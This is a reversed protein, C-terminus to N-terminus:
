AGCLYNNTTSGGFASSYAQYMDDTYYLNNFSNIRAKSLWANSKTHPSSFSPLKEWIIFPGPVPNTSCATAPTNASCTANLRAVYVAPNLGTQLKVAIHITWIYVTGVSSSFTVTFPPTTTWTKYLMGAPIRAPRNNYQLQVSFTSIDVVTNAPPNWESLFGNNQLDTVINLVKPNIAISLNNRCNAQYYKTVAQFLQDANYQAKDIMNQQEFFRYLRIGVILLAISIVFVLLLELLSVGEHKRFFFM